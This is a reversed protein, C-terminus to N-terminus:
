IIKQLYENYQKAVEKTIKGVKGVGIDKGNINIVGRVGKSSGTLFVETANLLEDFTFNRIIISIDLHLIKLM